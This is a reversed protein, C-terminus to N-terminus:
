PVCGRWGRTIGARHMRFDDAVLGALAGLAFHIQNGGAGNRLPLHGFFVPTFLVRGYMLRSVRHLAGCWNTIWDAAHLNIRRRRSGRRLTASLGIIEATQVACGFEARVRLFVQLWGSGLWVVIMPLMRM